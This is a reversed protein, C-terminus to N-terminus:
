KTRIELTQSTLDVSTCKENQKEYKLTSDQLYIKKVM